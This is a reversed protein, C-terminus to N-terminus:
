SSEVGLGEGNEATFEPKRKGSVLMEIMRYRRCKVNSGLM